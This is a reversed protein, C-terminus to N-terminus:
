GREGERQDPTHDGAGRGRAPVPQVPLGVGGQLRRCSAERAAGREGRGRRDLDHRPGRLANNGSTRHPDLRRASLDRVFPQDIKIKDFPFSRLYSLAFYDTEVPQASPVKVLKARVVRRTRASGWVASNEADMHEMLLLPRLVM